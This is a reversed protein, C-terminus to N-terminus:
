PGLVGYLKLTRFWLGAGLDGDDPTLTFLAEPRYQAKPTKQTKVPKPKMYSQAPTPARSSCHQGNM